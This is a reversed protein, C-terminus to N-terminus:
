YHFWGHHWTNILLIRGNREADKDLIPLLSSFNIQARLDKLQHRMFRFGRKIAKSSYTAEEDSGVYFLLALTPLTGQSM